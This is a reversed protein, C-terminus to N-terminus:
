DWTTPLGHPHAAGLVREEGGPWTRLVVLFEHPGDPDRRGPELHLHALRAHEGAREGIRELLALVAAREGSGLYPWMVSHWLVTTTGPVLTLRGVFREATAREVTAPRDAALELAGRLRDLRAVHDPWVYSTLALRGEATTPDVPSTDCGAREAIRLRPGLPPLRGRWADTLVMPSDAPGVGRGDPLQVRFRDALLNLGASAGIEFLRVPADWRSLLHQLGGLLAAARGVENTQPPQGLLRRLEDRHEVLVERLAPWAAAPDGRGGVSPYFEALGPTRGQLALRHVSGMLRLALASAGTDREHGALVEAGPGGDLVEDALRELLVLYLPSGLRGCVEAQERVQRAMRERPTGTM